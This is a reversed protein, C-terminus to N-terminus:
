RSDKLDLADFWDVLDERNLLGTVLCYIACDAKDRLGM